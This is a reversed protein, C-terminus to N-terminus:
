CLRVRKFGWVTLVAGFALTAIAAASRRRQKRM